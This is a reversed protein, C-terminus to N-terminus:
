LKFYWKYYLLSNKYSKPAKLFKKYIPIASNESLINNNIVSQIKPKKLFTRSYGFREVSTLSVFNWANKIKWSKGKHKIKEWFTRNAWPLGCDYWKERNKNRKGASCNLCWFYPSFLWWFKTLWLKCKIYYKM